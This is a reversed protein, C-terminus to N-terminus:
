HYVTGGDVVLIQGKIFAVDDTALIALVGLVDPFYADRPLARSAIAADRQASLFAPNALNGDSLMYGPSVTNATINDGGLERPLSRTM